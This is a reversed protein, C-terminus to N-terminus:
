LLTCPIISLVRSNMKSCLFKLVCPQPLVSALTEASSKANSNNVYFSGQYSHAIRERRLNNLLAEAFDRQRLAFAIKQNQRFEQAELVTPFTDVNNLSQWSNIVNDTAIVVSTKNNM